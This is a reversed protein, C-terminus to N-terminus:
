RSNAKASPSGKQKNDTIRSNSITIDAGDGVWIGSYQDAPQIESTFISDVWGGYRVDVHDFAGSKVWLHYWDGRAPSTAAGDGNTDGAVTDDRYSTFVIRQDETGDAILAGGSAEIAASSGNPQFKVVVGPQITLSGGTLVRVKGSVVYPSGALNWVTPQSYSPSGIPTAGVATGQWLLATAASITALIAVVRLLRRTQM